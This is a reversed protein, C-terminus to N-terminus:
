LASNADIAFPANEFPVPTPVPSAPGHIEAAGDLEYVGCPKVLPTVCSRAIWRPQASLPPRGSRM